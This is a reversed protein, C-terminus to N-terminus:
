IIYNMFSINSKIYINILIKEQNGECCLSIWKSFVEKWVIFVHLVHLLHLKPGKEICFWVNVIIVSSQGKAIKATTQDTLNIQFYGFIDFIESTM